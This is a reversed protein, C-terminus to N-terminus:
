ALLVMGWVMGAYCIAVFVAASGIDKTRKILIDQEQTVRDAVAELASNILEMLVILILSSMLLAREVGNDGLYFGLPMLVLCLLVEQRFAAENIWAAKLGSLSYGTAKIIRTLGTHKNM